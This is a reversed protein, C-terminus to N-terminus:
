RERALEYLQADVETGRRIEDRLSSSLNSTAVPALNENARYLPAPVPKAWLEAVRRAVADLDDAVGVVDLAALRKTALEALEVRDITFPADVLAQLSDGAPFRGLWAEGVPVDCALQRAQYDVWAPHWAESGIFEELTLDPRGGHTRVHGYHSLTREVPDRLVTLAVTGPPLLELVPFPLHGTVLVARELLPRPMCVLQDLWVDILRPWPAALVSLGHTLATGGCKM